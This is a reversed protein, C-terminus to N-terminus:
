ETTTCGFPGATNSARCYKVIAFYCDLWFNQLAATHKLQFMVFGHTDFDDAEQALCAQSPLERIIGDRLIGAHRFGHQAEDLASQAIRCHFEHQADSVGDANIQRIHHLLSLRGDWLFLGVARLPNGSAKCM